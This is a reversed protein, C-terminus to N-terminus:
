LWFIKYNDRFISLNRQSIHSYESIRNWVVLCGVSGHISWSVDVKSPCHSREKNACSYRRNVAGCICKPLSVKKLHPPLNNMSNVTRSHPWSDWQPHAKGQGHDGMLRGQSSVTPEQSTPSTEPAHILLTKQWIWPHTAVAEHSSSLIPWQCLWPLFASVYRSPCEHSCIGQSCLSYSQSFFHLFKPLILPLCFTFDDTTFSLLHKHRKM